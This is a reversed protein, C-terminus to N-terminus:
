LEAGQEMNRGFPTLTGIKTGTRTETGAENKLFTILQLSLFYEYLLKNILKLIRNKKLDIKNM